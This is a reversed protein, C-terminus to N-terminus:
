WWPNFYILLLVLICVVMCLLDASRVDECDVMAADPWNSWKVAGLYADFRKQEGLVHRSGNFVIWSAAFRHKNSGAVCKADNQRRTRTSFGGDIVPPEVALLLGRFPISRGNNSSNISWPLVLYKLVRTDTEWTETPKVFYTNSSNRM